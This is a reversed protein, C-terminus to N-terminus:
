RNRKIYNKVKIKRVKIAKRVEGQNNHELFDSYVLLFTNKDIALLGTYGCSVDGTYSGEGNMFPLMDIPATWNEGTGDLNFRMQVGPRGSTLVLTGNDLTLLSPKVGNPTFAVPKSWTKGGDKSVSQYMPTLKEQESSRVICVLTRDALETFAPETFGWIVREAGTSDAKLDPQFPIKGLIDWAVEDENWKYFSIGSPQIRGKDDAYFGRYNSGIIDGKKTRVIDGNWLVSMQDNVSYRYLGEDNFKAHLLQIPDGDRSRSKWRRVFSGNLEEPLDTDRYFKYTEGYSQVVSSANPFRKFSKVNKPAPVYPAFFQEGDNLSYSYRERDYSGDYDIWTRGKDRSMMMNKGANKKGYADYSDARM